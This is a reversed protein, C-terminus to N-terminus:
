HFDLEKKLDLISNMKKENQSVLRENEMGLIVIKMAYEEM